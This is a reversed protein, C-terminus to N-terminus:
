LRKYLWAPIHEPRKNLVVGLVNAQANELRRMAREAVECRTREAELVLLVGSLSGATAVSPSAETAPPLDVIILEYDPQLADLMDRIQQPDITSADLEHAASPALLSLNAISTAKPCDTLPAAATLADRLGLNGTLGFIRAQAPNAFNLDVLLVPRHVGEAAAVALNAAIASVGEGRACSTVGVTSLSASSSESLARLRHALNRFRGTSSTGPISRPISPQVLTSSVTIM